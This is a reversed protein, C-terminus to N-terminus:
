PSVPGTKTNAARETYRYAALTLMLPLVWTLSLTLYQAAAAVDRHVTAAATVSVAAALTCGSWVLSIRRNISRLYPSRWYSEPLSQRAYQETFPVTPVSLVMVATLVWLAASPSYVRLWDQTHADGVLAAATLAAFTVASAVELLKAGSPARNWVTMAIAVVTAIASAYILAGSGLPHPMVLYFVWPVFGVALGPFRM